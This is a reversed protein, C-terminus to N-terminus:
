LHRRIQHELRALDELIGPMVTKTKAKAQKVETPWEDNTAPYELGYSDKVV